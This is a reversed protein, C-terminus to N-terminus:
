YGGNIRYWGPNNESLAQPFLRMNYIIGNIEVWFMVYVSDPTSATLNVELDIYVVSNGVTINHTSTAEYQADREDGYTIDDTSVLHATLTTAIPSNDIGINWRIRLKDCDSDNYHTFGYQFTGAINETHNWCTLTGGQFDDSYVTMEVHESPIIGLEKYCIPACLLQYNDAASLDGYDVNGQWNPLISYPDGYVLAVIVDKANTEARPEVTIGIRKFPIYGSSRVVAIKSQTTSGNSVEILAMAWRANNGFVVTRPRFGDERWAESEGSLKIYVGQTGTRSKKLTAAYGTTIRFTVADYVRNPDEHYSANAMYLRYEIYYPGTFNGLDSLYGDFHLYLTQLTGGTQTIGLTEYDHAVIYGNADKLTIDFSGDLDYHEASSIPAIVDVRVTVDFAETLVFSNSNYTYNRTSNAAVEVDQTAGSINIETAAVRNFTIPSRYPLENGNYGDFDLVRYWENHPVLGRPKLYSWFEGDQGMNKLTTFFTSTSTGAAKKTIDFGYLAAEREAVTTALGSGRYPKKLSYKNWNMNTILYGLDYNNSGWMGAIDRGIDVPATIIGNNLPM